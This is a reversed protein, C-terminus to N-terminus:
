GRSVAFLRPNTVGYKGVLRADYTGAPVDAAVTVKFKRDKVHEATIGPHDFLLKTADEIDAGAVEVEVSSGAAAGLPAARDLRPSPLDARAASVLFLLALLSATRM